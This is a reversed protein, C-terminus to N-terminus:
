EVVKLLMQGKHVSVRRIEGGIGGEERVEREMREEEEEEEQSMTWRSSGERRPFVKLLPECVCGEERGGERGVCM